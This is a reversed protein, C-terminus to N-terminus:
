LITRLNSCRSTYNPSVHRVASIRTANNDTATEVAEPYALQPKPLEQSKVSLGSDFVVSPTKGTLSKVLFTDVDDDIDYFMDDDSDDDKDKKPPDIAPLDTAPPDTPAPSKSRSDTKLIRFM